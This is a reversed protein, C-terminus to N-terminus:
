LKRIGGPFIKCQQRHLHPQLSKDEDGAAASFEEWSEAFSNGALKAARLACQARPWQLRLRIM